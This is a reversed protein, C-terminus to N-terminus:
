NHPRINVVSEGTPQPAFYPRERFGFAFAFLASPFRRVTEDYTQGAGNFRNRAISINTELNTLRAALNRFDSSVKMDRRFLPMAVVHFLSQTLVAQAHDYKDLQSADAPPQGPDLKLKKTEARASVLENIAVRDFGPTSAAAKVLDSSLDARYQYAKDTASWETAVLKDLLALRKYTVNGEWALVVSILILSIVVINRRTIKTNM